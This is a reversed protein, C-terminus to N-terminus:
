WTIHEVRNFRGQSIQCCPLTDNNNIILIAFVLAVKDTSGLQARFLVDVEHCGFTPSQDTDTERFITSMLEVERQHHIGICGQMTRAERYTDVVHM